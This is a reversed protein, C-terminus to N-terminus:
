PHPSSFGQVAWIVYGPGKGAPILFGAQVLALPVTSSLAPGFIILLHAHEAQLAATLEHPANVSAPALYNVQGQWGTQQAYMDFAGEDTASGILAVPAELPLSRPLAKAALYAPRVIADYAAVRHTAIPVSWCLLLATLPLWMSWRWWEPRTQWSALWRLRQSFFRAGDVLLGAMGALAVPLSLLPLRLNNPSFPRLFAIVLLDGALFALLLGALESGCRARWGLWIFGGLALIGGILGPQLSWAPWLASLTSLLSTPNPTPALTQFGSPSVDRQVAMWLLPAWGLALASGAAFRWGLTGAKRRRWLLFLWLLLALLWGEYRTLAALGVVLALWPWQPEGPALALWIALCALTLFLGEQYPAITFLIFLPHLALALAGLYAISAGFARYLLLWFALIATIGFCIALVQVAFITDALRTLAFICLQFLPVWPSQFPQDRGLWRGYADGDYLLPYRLLLELRLGAAILALALAPLAAWSWGPVASPM